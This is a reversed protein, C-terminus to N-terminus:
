CQYIIRMNRLYYVKLVDVINKEDNFTPILLVINKGTCKYSQKKVFLLPLLVLLLIFMYIFPLLIIINM